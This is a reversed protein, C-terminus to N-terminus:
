LDPAQPVDKMATVGGLHRRTSSEQPECVCTGDREIHVEMVGASALRQLSALSPTVDGHELRAIHPQRSSIQTAFARQSLQHEARYRVVALSVAETFALRDSEVAYAPDGARRIRQVEDHPTLDSPKM